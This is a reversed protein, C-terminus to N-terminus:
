PVAGGKTKQAYVVMVDPLTLHISRNPIGMKALRVLSEVVPQDVLGGAVHLVYHTTVVKADCAVQRVTYGCGRLLETLTRRTFYYLHQPPAYMRAHRGLMRVLPHGVDGTSLVLWGDPALMGRLEELQARPDNLHEIVDWMTIVDFTRGALPALTDGCVMELGQARGQECAHESVELGTAKWGRARAAAVCFGYAAGFDLLFGPPRWKEIEALKSEFTSVLNERDRLYDLYGHRDPQGEFYGATYFARVEAASM